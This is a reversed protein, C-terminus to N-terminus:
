VISLSQLRQINHLPESCFCGKSMIIICHQSHVCRYQTFKLTGIFRNLVNCTICLIYLIYVCRYWSHAWKMCPGRIGLEKMQSHGDETYSQCSLPLRAFCMCHEKYCAVALLPPLPPAPPLPLSLRTGLDILSNLTPAM